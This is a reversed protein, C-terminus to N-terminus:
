REVRVRPVLTHYQKVLRGSWFGPSAYEFRPPKGGQFDKLKPIPHRQRDLVQALPYVLLALSVLTPAHRTSIEERNGKFM